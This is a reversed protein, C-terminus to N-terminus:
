RPGSALTTTAAAFCHEEVRDFSAQYRDLFCRYNRRIIGLCDARRSRPLELSQVYRALGRAVLAGPVLQFVSAGLTALDLLQRAHPAAGPERTCADFDVFHVEFERGPEGGQVLLNQHHLDGHAYGARHLRIVAGIVTELWGELLQRPSRRRRLHEFAFDALPQCQEMRRTISYCIPSDPGNQRELFLLPEPVPLARRWLEGQHQFAGWAHNMGPGGEPRLLPALANGPYCKVVIGRGDPGTLQYTRRGTSLLSLHRIEAGPSSRLAHPLDRLWPLWAGPDLSTSGVGADHDLPFVRWSESLEPPLEPFRDSLM